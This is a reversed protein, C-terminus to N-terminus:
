GNSVPLSITFKTGEEVSSHSLVLRGGHQEVIARALFLGLGNGNPRQSVAQPTRYFQQFIREREDEPIPEGPNTMTMLVQDGEVATAIKIWGKEAQNYDTANDLMNQLVEKFLIPDLSLSPVEPALTVELNIARSRILTEANGVVEKVFQNLNAPQPNYPLRGEQIRSVNLLDNVVHILRENTEYAQDIMKHQEPLKVIDEDTQLISLSWKIISLPTRLQHSTISIFSDKMEDLQRLKMNQQELNKVNVSQQVAYAMLNTIAALFEIDDNVHRNHPGTEGAVLYAFVHDGHQIPLAVVEDAQFLSRLALTQPDRINHSVLSLRQSYASALASSNALHERLHSLQKETLHDSALVNGRNGSLSIVAAFDWGLQHVVSQCSLLYIEKDLLASFVSLSLTQITKLQTARRSALTEASTAAQVAAKESKELQAVRAELEHLQALLAQYGPM